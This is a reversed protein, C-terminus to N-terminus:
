TRASGNPVIVWHCRIGTASAPGMLQGTDHGELRELGDDVGEIQEGIRRDCSGAGSNRRGTERLAAQRPSAVTQCTAGPAASRTRHRRRPASSAPRCTSAASRPRSDRQRRPWPARPWGRGSARRGEAPCMAWIVGRDDLADEPLVDRHALAHAQHRHDLRNPRQCPPRTIRATLDRTGLHWISFTSRGRRNGTRPNQRVPSPSRVGMEWRCVIPSSMGGISGDKGDDLSPLSIPM